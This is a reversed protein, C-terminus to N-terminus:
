PVSVMRVAGIQPAAFTRRSEETRTGRGHRSRVRQFMGPTESDVNDHLDVHAHEHGGAEDKQDDTERDPEKADRQRDSPLVLRPKATDTLSELLIRHRQQAPQEAPIPLRAM